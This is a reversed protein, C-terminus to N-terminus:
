RWSSNSSRGATSSSPWRSWAGASAAAIIADAERRDHAIPTEVLVHLGHEIAMLGVQGNAGYNVSVVGIQPATERILRELDTYAPVGLSAGLRQASADSRGWVAVLEVGPLAKLIPGYMGLSRRSTGIIAIRTPDPQTMRMNRALQSQLYNWM